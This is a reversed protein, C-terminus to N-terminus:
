TIIGGSLNGMNFGKGANAIQQKQAEDRIREVEDKIAQPFKDFAEGLCEADVEASIPLAGAQTLIQTHASYIPKRSEDETGDEKVPTIRRISATKLDTFVEEKYLNKKDAMLGDLDAIQDEAM